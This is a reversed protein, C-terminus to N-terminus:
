TPERDPMSGLERCASAYEEDNLEAFAKGRYGNAQIGKRKCLAKLIAEKNDKEPSKEELEGQSAEGHDKKSEGKHAAVKATKAKSLNGLEFVTKGLKENVIRLANINGNKDFGILDVRFTDYTMKKGNRDEIRVDGKKADVWIFPATYLERGIGWNFCARKFSDSAQGKEKETYSETGVDQKSVWMKKKDDWLSVTCYLNEGILEHKREWNEPGVTEDLIKQDVRADKYLLLSCGRENITAIRVDIEDFNLNRFKM